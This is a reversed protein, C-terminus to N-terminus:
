VISLVKACLYQVRDLPACELILSGHLHCIYCDQKLVDARFVGRARLREITSAPTPTVRHGYKNM